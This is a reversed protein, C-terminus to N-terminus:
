VKKAPRGARSLKLTLAEEPSKGSQYIRSYLTERSINREQAWQILSKTKGFATIMLRKRNGHRGLVARYEPTGQLPVTVAEKPTWNLKCIRYWITQKKIGTEQAWEYLTQTRGDVTLTTINHRRYPRDIRDESKTEIKKPLAPVPKAAEPTKRAVVPKNQATWYIQLFREIKTRQVDRMQWFTSKHEQTNAFYYSRAVTSYDDWLMELQIKYEEQTM